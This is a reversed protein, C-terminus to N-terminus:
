KVFRLTEQGVKLIYVGKAGISLEIRHDKVTGSQLLVGTINYLAFTTNNTHLGEIIVQDGAIRISFEQAFVDNINTDKEFLYTLISNHKLTHTYVNKEKENLNNSNLKIEKIKYGANPVVKFTLESDKDIATGFAIMDTGKMISVLGTKKEADTRDIVKATACGKSDGKVDVVWKTKAGELPLLETDYTTAGPNDKVFLMPNETVVTAPNSPLTFLADNITCASVNNKRIDLYYLSPYTKGFELPLVELKNNYLVLRNLNDSQLKIEKLGCNSVDLTKLKTNATLDLTEGEITNESPTFILLEPLMSVDITKLKNNNCNVLNLKPNSAFNLESLNNYGCYLEELLPLKSIDLVNLKNNTVALEKLNVLSSLDITTIQNNSLRLVKLSKAKNFVAEVFKCGAVELHNIKGFIKIRSELDVTQSVKMPDGAKVTYDKPGNGWDIQIPTDKEAGLHMTIYIEEIDYGDEDKGPSLATTKFEAIPQPANIKFAKTAYGSGYYNFKELSNYGANFLYARIYIASKGKLVSADFTFVGDKETYKSKDIPIYKRNTSDWEKWTYTTKQPTEAIGTQNDLYALDVTLDEIKEKPVTPSLIQKITFKNVDTENLDPLMDYGVACMSINVFKLKKLKKAGLIATPCKKTSAGKIVLSELNPCQTLDITPIAVGNLGLTKLNTLKSFDLENMIKFSFLRLGIQFNELKCNEPLKVSQIESENLTLIKLNPCKTLDLEPSETMPSYDLNLTELTQSSLSVVQNVERCAALRLLVLKDANIKMVNDKTTEAQFTHELTMLKDAETQKLTATEGNGFDITAEANVANLRYVFKIKTSGSKVNLQVSNEQAFMGMQLSFLCFFFFLMKKM